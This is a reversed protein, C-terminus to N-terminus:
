HDNDRASATGVTALTAGALGIAIAAAKLLTHMKSEKETRDGAGVRCKRSELWTDENLIHPKIFHERL